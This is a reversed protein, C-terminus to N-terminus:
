NLLSDMAQGSKSKRPKPRPAPAAAPAAQQQSSTQQSASSGSSAGKGGFYFDGVLSSSEWPVQKKNTDKMVGRRVKKFFQEITLNKKKMNSLMNAVYPSNSGRGDLAVDGPATAFAIFSGTPADMQALGNSASRFSRKFPNNRCADLIVINMRNGADEMKALVKGADIAEYQVDAQGQIKMHLPVLYNRGNVQLGHGSFYFLGVDYGKLKRGFEDIAKGITARDANKVVMVDFGSQKLSKHMASVDNVPNRLPGNKYASNGILLALRSQALSDNAALLLASFIVLFFIGASRFSLGTKM